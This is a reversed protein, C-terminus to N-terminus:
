YDIISPDLLFKEIGVYLIGNEDHWPVINDKIVVIKKFSDHVLRYPRIEQLRKEEEGISFASQLYYKRSGDTAAFDIELNGKKSKGAPDKYNWEVVGVDVDFGRRCLENYLINEMIHNEETQRFNLRANRLGIDAFYYKSPSGIYKRGKVDYRVAKSILFADTLYDLYKAITDDTVKIRKESAFTDAIKKPSTLSGTSSSIVDLLDDLLGKDKIHRRELIDNVYINGFLNKLYQSKEQHTKLRLLYPMGGYTFYSAWADNKDGSLTDYYEKYSLPHVRIEDGRGRFETLLDSSLMRSNSGTVYLDVNRRKMLGLLVDVFGVTEDDSDLYPNKITKVKQIEDLFVYYAKSDDVLFSRIYKGLELPNRYRINEDDDLSLEVIQDNEVGISKLYDRYIGFLLTSKGCRRIGTIVKIMGNGKKAILQKLYDDREIM